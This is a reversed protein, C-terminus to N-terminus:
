SKNSLVKKLKRIAKRVDLHDMGLKRVEVYELLAEERRGVSEYFQALKLHYKPNAPYNEVSKKLFTEVQFSYDKAQAHSWRWYVSAIKYAFGPNFSDRGFAEEFYRCADKWERSDEYITGKFFYAHPNLPNLKISRDVFAVALPLNGQTQANLAEAFYNQAQYPVRVGFIILITFLQGLLILIIKAFSSRIQFSFWTRGTLSLQNLIALLVWANLAVAPEYLDFDVLSHVFFAFIGLITAIRIFEMGADKGTNKKIISRVGIILPVMWILLFVIGVFLGSESCVQLFNNHAMRTEEAQPLMYRAYISGFTGPGTGWWAFDNIISLASKWYDFRVRFSSWIRLAVEDFNIFVLMLITCELLVIMWLYLRRYKLNIFRFCLIYGLIRVFFFVVLGGKSLTLFFTFLYLVPYILGLLVASWIMQPKGFILFMFTGLIVSFSAVWKYLNRGHMWLGALSLPILCLLYGALANPYILTSFIRPSSLRARFSSPLKGLDMHSQVWLRTEELGFFNQYLGYFSVASATVLLVVVLTLILRKDEFVHVILGYTLFATFINLFFAIGEHPNISFFWSIGLGVLFLVHFLDLHTRQIVLRGQFISKLFWVFCLFIVWIFFLINSGPYVLGSILPRIMLLGCVGFILLLSLIRDIM